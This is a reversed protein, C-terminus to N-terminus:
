NCEYRRLKSKTIKWDKGKGRLWFYQDYIVGNKCKDNSPDSAIYRVTTKIFAEGDKTVPFYNVVSPTWSLRTGTIGGFAKKSSFRKYSGWHKNKQLGYAKRFDRRGLAAIFQKVTQIAYSRNATMVSKSHRNTSPYKQSYRKAYKWGRAIAKRRIPGKAHVKTGFARASQSEIAQDLSYGLYFFSEGSFEDAEIEALRGNGRLITHQYIHHGVEHGMIRASKMVDIKEFDSRDYIIYKKGKFDTAFATADEIKETSCLTYEEPDGSIAQLIEELIKEERLEPARLELTAKGYDYTCQCGKWHRSDSRYNDPFVGLLILIVFIVFLWSFFEKIQEM